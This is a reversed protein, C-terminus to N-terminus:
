QMKKVGMRQAKVTDNWMSNNKKDEPLTNNLLIENDKVHFCGVVVTSFSPCKEKLETIKCLSGDSYFHSKYYVLINKNMSFM